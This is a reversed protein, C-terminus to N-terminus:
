MERRGACRPQVQDFAPEGQQAFFLDLAARMDARARELGRDRGVDGEAVTAGLREHPRLGCVLDEGAHSSKTVADRPCSVLAETFYDPPKPYSAVPVTADM